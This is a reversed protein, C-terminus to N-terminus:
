PFKGLILDQRISRLIGSVEMGSTARQLMRNVGKYYARTHIRSHVAYGLPNRSNVFRPLFIGNMPDNIDIHFRDLVKRADAARWARGAVIHHAATEPPRADQPWRKLMNNALTKSSPATSKWAGHLPQSTLGNKGLNRTGSGLTNTNLGGVPCNHALVQNDGVQYTHTPTVTLDIVPGSIGIPTINQVPQLVGAATLLEDGINLQATPTWTQTTQNWWPHSATTTIQEGGVTLGILTDQHPYIDKVTSASTQSTLPDASVVQDGTQIEGIPISTGDVSLVPTDPTFSCGSRTLRQTLGRIGGRGAGTISHGAGSMLMRRGAITSTGRAAAAMTRRLAVKALVRAVIGSGAGILSAVIEIVFELPKGWQFMTSCSDLYKNDWGLYNVIGAPAGLNSANVLGFWLNTLDALIDTPDFGFSWLGLPDTLQLPNGAAYGYADGTLDVAPDVTLFVGTAPDYYRARLYMLGTPDVWEGAFGFRTVTVVPPLGEVTLPEGYATYDSGAVVMGTADTVARISGLVDGHFCLWGPEDQSSGGGGSTTREDSRQALPSSGAGYVYAARGDTLLLPVSTSVQDWVYHEVRGGSTISTPTATSRLGAADYTYVWTSGDLMSVSALRGSPGYGYTTTGTTSHESVRNGVQDFQYTVTVGAPSEAQNLQGTLPDTTFSWGTDVGTLTGGPTFSLVGGGDGSGDDGGYTIQNLRRLPDWSYGATATQNTNRTTSSGALLGDAEFSQELTLVVGAPGTTTSSVLRSAQDYIYSTTVGNPYVLGSVRGAQDYSYLYSGTVSDAVEVLEDALNYSYTVVSGDPYTIGHLRNVSDYSYSTVGGPTRVEIVRGSQDYEYVTGDSVAVIQSYQNYTYNIDSTTAPYDVGILRSLGDYVYAATVGVADTVTDLRGAVDYTYTTSGSVPDTVNDVRGDLDYSTTTTLGDPSTENVVQGAQDYAYVWSAELTPDDGSGESAKVPLGVANYITAMYYGTSDSVGVQNGDPDYMYTTELGAPDVEWILEGSSGYGYSTVGGAPDIVRVLQGLRDYTYSTVRGLPDTETVVEGFQNYSYCWTSIVTGSSRTVSSVQGALDYTYRTTVGVTTVTVPRGALDYSYRTVQGLPDTQKVLLGTDAAYEFTSRLGDPTTVSALGGQLNYGYITVLGDPSTESLVRGLSDTSVATRVGMPTREGIVQGYPDYSYITDAALPDTMSALTGDPNLSMRTTNGAADRAWTLNGAQDFGTYTTKGMPSRTESLYGVQDYFMNTRRGAASTVSTPNRDQDYTYRTRNGFQDTVATILTKDTHTRSYSTTRAERTGYGDTVKLLLHDYYEEKTVMGDPHTILTAQPEYVFSTEGLVSDVQSIVRDSEDYTNTITQGSPNTIRRVRGEGDYSYGVITGDAFRVQSIRNLSDYTYVVQRGTQDTAATVHGHNWTFRVFRGQGDVVGRLIEGEWQVSVRNNNMDVLGTLRGAADFLFVESKNRTFRYGGDSLIELTAKTRDSTAYRGDSRKWFVAISGNEQEVWLGNAQGLAVRQGDAPTIRMELNSRWGEGFPGARDRGFTSFSRVHEVPPGVGAMDLDTESEWWEGTMTAVPDGICRGEWYLAPNIGCWYEALVTKNYFGQWVDCKIAPLLGPDTGPNGEVVCAQIPFIKAPYDGFFVGTGFIFCEYYSHNCWWNFEQGTVILNDIGWGM